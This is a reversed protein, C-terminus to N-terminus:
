PNWAQRAEILKVSGPNSVFSAKALGKIEGQSVQDFGLGRHTRQPPTSFCVVIDLPSVHLSCPRKATPSGAGSAILPISGAAETPANSAHPIRPTRSEGDQVHSEQSEPATVSGVTWEVGADNSSVATEL